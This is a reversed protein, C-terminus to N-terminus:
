LNDNCDVPTLHHVRYSEASRKDFDYVSFWSIMGSEFRRDKDIMAGLSDSGFM